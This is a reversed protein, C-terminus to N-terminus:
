NMSRAPSLQKRQSRTRRVGAYVLLFFAIESVYTSAVAGKWTYRPILYLNLAVNLLATSIQFRARMHQLGSGTLVDAFLLQFAKVVPYAGLWLAVPVVDGFQGALLWAAIPAACVGCIAGVVAAGVVARGIRRSYLLATSIGENGQRYFEPLSAQFIALMPMMAYSMLRFGAAYIGNEARFGYSLLMAKDVNNQLANSSQGLAFPAGERATAVLRMGRVDPRGFTQRIWLFSALSSVLVAALLLAGLVSTNKSGSIWFVAVAAARAMGEGVSHAAAAAYRDMAFCVRGHNALLATSMFEMSTLLAITTLPVDFIFRGVGITVALVVIGITAASALVEGWASSLRDTDRSVKQVLAEGVGMTNLPAVLTAFAVVGAFVGFGDTDLIRGIAFFAFLSFAARGGVGILSWASKQKAPSAQLNTWARALIPFPM